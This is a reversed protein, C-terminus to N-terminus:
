CKDERRRDAEARTLVVNAKKAFSAFGLKRIDKGMLPNMEKKAVKERKSSSAQRRSVAQSEVQEERENDEYDKDADDTVEKNISELYVQELSALIGDASTAPGDQIQKELKNRKLDTTVDDKVLSVCTKTISVRSTDCVNTKM